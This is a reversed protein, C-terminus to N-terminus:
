SHTPCSCAICCSIGGAARISGSLPLYAQQLTAACHPAVREEDSFIKVSTSGEQHVHGQVPLSPLACCLATALNNAACDAPPSM